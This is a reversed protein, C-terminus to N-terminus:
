AGARRTPSSEKFKGLRKSMPRCAIGATQFSHYVVGELKQHKKLIGLAFVIDTMYDSHLM